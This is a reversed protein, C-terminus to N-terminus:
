GIHCHLSIAMNGLVVHQVLLPFFYKGHSVVSPHISSSNLGIEHEQEAGWPGWFM